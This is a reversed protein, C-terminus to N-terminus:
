SENEYENWYGDWYGYEFCDVWDKELFNELVTQSLQDCFPKNFQIDHKAQESGMKWAYEFIKDISLNSGSLMFVRIYVRIM